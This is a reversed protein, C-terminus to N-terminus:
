RVRIDHGAIRANLFTQTPYHTKALPLRHYRSTNRLDTPPIHRCGLRDNAVLWRPRSESTRCPLSHAGPVLRKWYEWWDLRGAMSALDMILGAIKDIDVSRASSLRCDQAVFHLALLIPVVDPTSLYEGCWAKRTEYSTESSHRRGTSANALRRMIPDASTQSNNVLRGFSTAPHVQVQLGFMERITDGFIGWSSESCRSELTELRSLLERKLVFFSLPPIAYSISELCRQVLPNRIVLDASFRSIEGDEYRITFTSGVSDQLSTMRKNTRSKPRM